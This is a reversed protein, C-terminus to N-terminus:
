VISITNTPGINFSPLHIISDTFESFGAVNDNFAVFTGSFGVATFARASNAAFSFNNLIAGIQPATLGFATGNSSNLTTAAGSPRKLFDNATFDGIVDFFALLSDSLSNYVFTDSSTETSALPEALPRFVFLDLSSDKGGLLTDKGGGGTIVDNGQKGNINDNGAGGTLQNALDNGNLNDDFNSGIVNEINSLSDNGAAGSSGGKNLAVSVSGTADAYSATDIGDGGNLTDNGLGGTLTDNGGAGSLNNAAADGTITDPLNSGLVTEFQSINFSLPVGNIILVGTNTNISVTGAALNTVTNTAPASAGSLDISDGAAGSAIIREISNLSDTGLTTGKNLVGQASLTVPTTFSSYNATDDTGAGGDLTDNGATGFFTDNGTGGSLNNAVANGTLTDAFSGAIINEIASLTDLGAAGLALGTTLSVNVSGAADAYSATDIGDGGNLTDNGLGGALTDNGGAGSLNNAVADGTIADPLNSGRVTEFQSINFSLPAGNVILVGTNTNISLTGAALNTVTNTAPAIAGSLDIIDGAAGSAIIREIGNLSDTGLGSGKNLVGQASLTVPTTFSSYNATDDTGTGGNLTDNGATGFFTDNGGAGSLNNAAANGTITDPLNSGIVNEFESVTFSLPAGNIVLVGTNTNVSVTGTTLNAVTNTAPAIAGSLDLIDAFSNSSGIIREIGRLSDTGLASGKNLVGQASLTVPTTFSSYNATDGTGAGGDLTDNGATGFFTDNGGDGRLSNAGLNGTLLDGIGSGIANEISVLIDNGGGGTATGTTLNINVSLLADSYSVTDIGAEGDILDNGGGGAIFDDGRGASIQDDGNTAIGEVGISTFITTIFDSFDTGIVISM